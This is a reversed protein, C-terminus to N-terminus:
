VLLELDSKTPVYFVGVKNRPYEKRAKEYAEIRDRGDAVVKDGVVAICKGAFRRALEQSHRSFYESPTKTRNMLGM